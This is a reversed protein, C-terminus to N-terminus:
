RSFNWSDRSYREKYLKEVIFKEFDTLKGDVLKVSFTEEFSWRLVEKLENFDIEVKLEDILNTVPMNISAIVGGKYDARWAKLVKKMRNVDVNVLLTGHHLIGGKRRLQASGSLKKGNILINGPPKFKPNLGMLRLARQLWSCLVKYSETIGLRKILRHEDTLVITYNLNGLDQYVTGGGSVRRIVSIGEKMCLDLDVEDCVKQFRGVVVSKDNRWFRLTPLSHKELIASLIAEDIALNMAPDKPFELELFRWEELSVGLIKL